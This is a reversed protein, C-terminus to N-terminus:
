IEGPSDGEVSDVAIGTHRGLGGRPVRGPKPQAEGHQEVRLLDHRALGAHPSRGLGHKQGGVSLHEVAPLDVVAELRTIWAPVM